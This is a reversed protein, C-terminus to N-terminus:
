YLTETTGDEYDITLGFTDEGISAIQEDDNNKISGTVTSSTETLTLEIDQQNTLTLTASEEPESVALYGNLEKTGRTYSIELYYSGDESTDTANKNLKASMVLGVTPHDVHTVQGEFNIDGSIFDVESEPDYSAANDATIELQGQWTTTQPNLDNYDGTFEVVQPVLDNQYTNKVFMMRFQGQYEADNTSVGGSFSLEASDPTVESMDQEGTLSISLEGNTSIVETSFSGILNLSATGTLDTNTSGTLAVDLDVDGSEPGHFTGELNYNPDAPIMIQYVAGSEATIKRTITNNSDNSLTLDGHYYYDHQGVDNVNYEFQAAQLDLIYDYDATDDAVKRIEDPNTMKIEAYYSSDNTHDNIKWEWLDSSSNYPGVRELVDTATLNYEGPSNSVFGENILHEIEGIETSLTEFFNAIEQATQEQKTTQQQLTQNMFIGGNRVEQTMRKANACAPYGPKPIQTNNIFGALKNKNLQPRGNGDTDIDGKGVTLDLTGMQVKVMKKAKKLVNEVDITTLNYDNNGRHETYRLATLTTAGNIEGPEGGDLQLTNGVDPILTSLHVRHGKVEKEVVILVNIGKPIESIQYSGDSGTTAVTGVQQNTSFNVATVEANAVAQENDNARAENTFLKAFRKGFNSRSAVTTGSPAKITGSVTTTEMEPASNGGGDNGSCGVLLLLVVLLSILVASPKLRNM